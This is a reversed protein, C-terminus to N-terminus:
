INLMDDPSALFEDLFYAVIVIMCFLSNFNLLCYRERERERERREGRKESFTESLKDFM